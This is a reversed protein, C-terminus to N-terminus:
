YFSVTAFQFFSQGPFRDSSKLQADVLDAVLFRLDTKVAPLAPQPRFM